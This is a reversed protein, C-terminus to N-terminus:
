RRYRTVSKCIQLVEEDPLPPEMWAANAERAGALVAPRSAGASHMQGCLSVLSLHRSGPAVPPMEMSFRGTAPDVSWAPEWIRQGCAGGASPEAPEESFHAAVVADIGGQADAIEGFAFARGTILFYRGEAYAEWGRRNNRGKFPLEGRCVIHLGRGSRSVETYSRCALVAEMAEDTPMGDDGFAGDIDIGVLGDGAFVFGAWERRGSRVATLADDWDCWSAPDSVSAARPGDCRMPRKSGADAAVWRRLARMEPPVAGMLTPM